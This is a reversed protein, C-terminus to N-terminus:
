LEDPNRERENFTQSGASDDDAGPFHIFTWGAKAV